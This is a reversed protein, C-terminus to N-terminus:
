RIKRNERWGHLVYHDWASRFKGGRIAEAVDRNFALYCREDFEDRSVVAKQDMLLENSTSRKVRFGSTELSEQILDEDCLVEACNASDVVQALPHIGGDNPPDICLSQFFVRMVHSVGLRTVHRLDDEFYEGGASQSTVIEYSPFYTVNDFRRELEDAAVRLASKSYVSSVLVHRNEYTAALPVPSVTLIIQARRNVDAILERLEILDDIIEHVRFNIFEHEQPNYQGGAVGPALPYMAGDHKSRWGETLGLTFIIWDAEQFMKRVCSFHEIRDQFLHEMSAFGDPEINPRFPDVFTGYRQWATDLPVFTGFARKFLQVAQRATYVNGYRASFIGYNRKRAITENLGNAGPETVLYGFGAEKIQRAVRQAFCSGLTAIKHERSIMPSVVAPSIQGPAPITMAKAWFQFENLESYPHSM